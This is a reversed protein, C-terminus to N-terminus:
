KYKQDSKHRRYKMRQQQEVVDHLVDDETSKHNVVEDNFVDTTM